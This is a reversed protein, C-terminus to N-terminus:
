PLVKADGTPKDRSEALQWLTSQLRATKALGQLAQFLLARLDIM